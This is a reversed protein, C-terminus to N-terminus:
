APETTPRLHVVDGATVVHEAGDDTRIVLFGDDTLRSAVGHLQTGALEVRVRRGLTASREAAAAVVRDIEDLQSGFARLWAVLLDGRDVPAAAHRDAATALDALEPPFSDARVNLGMGVVVM